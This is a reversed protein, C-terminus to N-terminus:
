FASRIKNFYEDDIESLDKVIWDANELKDASFSTTLALCKCGASKAAVIGNIADEIVLCQSPQIGVKEAAKLYIEPHPKKHEVELGNVLADFMKAELGAVKLNILMKTEDASTAVAM